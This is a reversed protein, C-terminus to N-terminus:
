GAQTTDAKAEAQVDPPGKFVQCKNVCYAITTFGDHGSGGHCRQLLTRGTCSRCSTELAKATAERGAAEENTLKYPDLHICTLAVRPTRLWNSPPNDEHVTEAYGRWAARKAVSVADEGIAWKYSHGTHYRKCDSCWYPGVADPVGYRYSMKCPPIM